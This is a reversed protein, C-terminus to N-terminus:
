LFQLVQDARLLDVLVEKPLFSCAQWAREGRRRTGPTSAYDTATRFIRETFGGCVSGSNGRKVKPRNPGYDLPKSFGPAGDDRMRKVGFAAVSTYGGMMTAAFVSVNIVSVLLMAADLLTRAPNNLKMM